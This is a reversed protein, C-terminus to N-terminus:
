GRMQRRIFKEVAGKRNMLNAELNEIPIEARAQTRHGGAPGFQGLAKKLRKGANIRSGIARYIVILQKKVVGAVITQNIDNVRMFFDALQVMIDPNNVQELYLFAVGKRLKALEFAQKYFKLTKRNIESNQIKSIVTKSALPFLYRFAHMDQAQGKNAFNNTDTKIGYFLATALNRSPKIKAARLYETMMTAVAGYDPRVDIFNAEIEQYPHHDIIFDYHEIELLEKHHHPQSDILAIRNYDEFKLKNFHIIPIKLLSIMALNDSRLIKNIHSITVSFVQRWLLRKLALASSIADPDADILILLRDNSNIEEFFRNLREIMSISRPLLNSKSSM